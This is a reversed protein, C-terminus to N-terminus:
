EGAGVKGGMKAGCVPCWNWRPSGLSKCESCDVADEGLLRQPLWEGHRVEVVDAASQEAIDMLAYDKGQAGIWPDKKITEILAERDIYEAM